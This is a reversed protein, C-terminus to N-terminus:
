KKKRNSAELEHELNQITLRADTESMGVQDLSGELQRRKLENLWSSKDM